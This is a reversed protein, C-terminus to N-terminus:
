FDLTEHEGVKHLHKDVGHQRHKKNCASAIQQRAQGAQIPACQSTHKEIQTRGRQDKAAQVPHV